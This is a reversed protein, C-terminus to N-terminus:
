RAIKDAISTLVHSVDCRPRVPAFTFDSNLRDNITQRAAPPIYITLQWFVSSTWTRSLRGSMPVATSIASSPVSEAADGLGIEGVGAHLHQFLVTDFCAISFPPPSTSAYARDPAVRPADADAIWTNFSNARIVAHIPNSGTKEL